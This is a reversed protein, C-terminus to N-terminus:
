KKLNRIMIRDLLPNYESNKFNESSYNYELNTKPPAFLRINATDKKNVMELAVYFMNSVSYIPRISTLFDYGTQKWAAYIEELEPILQDLNDRRQSFLNGYNPRETNLTYEGSTIRRFQYYINPLKTDIILLAIDEGLSNKSFKSPVVYNCFYLNTINREKSLIEKYPETILRQYEEKIKKHELLINRLTILEGKDTTEKFFEDETLGSEIFEKLLDKERM